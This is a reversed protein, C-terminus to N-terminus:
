KNMSNIINEFQSFLERVFPKNSKKFQPFVCFMAERKNLDIVGDLYPNTQKRKKIRTVTTDLVDMDHKELFEQCKPRPAINIKVGKSKAFNALASKMGDLYNFVDENVVRLENSVTFYKDPNVRRPKFNANLLSKLMGSKFNYGVSNLSM